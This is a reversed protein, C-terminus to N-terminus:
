ARPAGTEVHRGSRAWAATGGAVSYADYGAAVLVDTMAASRNGSACIVYVPRSKDVEGLRFALQTMPVLEAGPVHGAVYEGPERIDIVTAGARGAELEDIDIEPTTSSM